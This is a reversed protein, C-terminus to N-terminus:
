RRRLPTVLLLRRGLGRDDARATVARVAPYLARVAAEVRATLTVDSAPCHTCAGSLRVEVLGDHVDLLEIQGYHGRIYAGVEGDIVAQAAARLADDPGRVPQGSWRDPTALAVQLASRVRDGDARWARGASLTTRVAAPEVVLSELTGDDLLAQVAAPAATVPGVLGLTGPPMVWRLTRGDDVTAEPHLPIVALDEDALV